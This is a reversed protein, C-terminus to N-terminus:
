TEPREYDNFIMALVAHRDPIASQQEGLDRRAADVIEGVLRHVERKQEPTTKGGAKTIDSAFRLWTATTEVLSGGGWIAVKGRIAAETPLDSGGVFSRIVLGILEEYVRAQEARWALKLDNERQKRLQAAEHRRQEIENAATRERQERDRTAEQERQDRERKADYARQEKFSTASATAVAATLAATLLVVGSGSYDRNWNFTGTGPLSGLVLVLGLLGTAVAILYLVVRYSAVPRSSRASDSDAAVNM